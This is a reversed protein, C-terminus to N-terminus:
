KKDSKLLPRVSKLLLLSRKKETELQKKLDQVEEQIELMEKRLDQVEDAQKKGSVLKKIASEAAKYESSEKNGSSTITELAPLSRRDELSALARISAIRLSPKPHSLFESVFVRVKEKVANDAQEGRVLIALSNMSSAFSRTTFSTEQTQLVKLLIEAYEPASQDKMAHIAASAFTNRYSPKELAGLLTTKVESVPFKGLGDIAVAAVEPNKEKDAIQKLAALADNSYFKVLARTVEQRARADKQELSDALAKLADPTHTKALAKAAEIRVGYFSDNNLTHKLKDISKSDKKGGLLQVALLRGMMDKENKLQASRTSTPPHFYIDALLTYDPDVRIIEPKEPLDFYFDESDRTISLTTDHAKGDVIMRVPLPLVFLVVKDSIKQTQSISLKAQSRKEDWDYSVKLKPVGGHHVWQDFFRDWSQGSLEEIVRRLDATEVSQERNRELYTQICKQYLEPGLQSRLMHLVWGGKPYVRYDFQEQPNKYGRWTIPKEDKAKFIRNADLYLRYQMADTGNKSQEYLNTYFTAFGENLWLQSWDKATVLDGFWQHAMEHADLPYSTRINESDESFLTYTTLTTLSTNEMGGAIFDHVCVSFYKDWPYPVGIEKEFFTMIQKTDRFSNEAVKFESPPAYFALPIDRYQDELKDFYGAVVSVLYNAHPKDQLWHFTTFGDATKESLLKGNSLVTMKEPVKCIVESTFRENPYDYGPFWYRHREPQGQTWLQDDGKPYGMAETRFYLGHDPKEVSYTIKVWAEKGVPLAQKFTLVIQKDNNEWDQLPASSEVKEVSLSVADLHLQDLPKAIPSFNLTAVGAMAQKAFDPVLELKLHKVDIRRDREYQRGGVGPKSEYFANLYHGKEQCTEWGQNEALASPILLSCCILLLLSLLTQRLSRPPLNKM